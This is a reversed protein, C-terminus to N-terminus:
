NLLLGKRGESSRIKAPDTLGRAAEEAHRLKRMRVRDGDRVLMEKLLQHGRAPPENSKNM